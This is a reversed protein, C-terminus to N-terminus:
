PAARRDTAPLTRTREAAISAVLGPHLLDIATLMDRQERCLATIARCRDRGLRWALASRIAADVEDWRCPKLLCHLIRGRNLANVLTGATAHGTMLLTATAPWRAAAEILLEIGTMGPMLEDTLLVDAPQREMEAIAAEGSPAIRLSYPEARLQRRLAEGLAADDDVLLVNPDM